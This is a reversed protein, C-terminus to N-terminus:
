FDDTNAVFDTECNIEIISKEEETLKEINTLIPNVKSFIKKYSSQIKLIIKNDVKKRKLGILGKEFSGLIRNRALAIAQLNTLSGGALM